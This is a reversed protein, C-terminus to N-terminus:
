VMRGTYKNYAMAYLNVAEALGVEAARLTREWDEMLFIM